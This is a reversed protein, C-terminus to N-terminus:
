PCFKFTLHLFHNIAALVLKPVIQINHEFWWIKLKKRKSVVEWVLQWVVTHKKENTRLFLVATLKNKSKQPRWHDRLSRLIPRLNGKPWFCMIILKSIIWFLYQRLSSNLSKDNQACNVPHGSCSKKKQKKMQLELPKAM